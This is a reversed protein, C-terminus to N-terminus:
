YSLSQKVPGRHHGIPESVSESVCSEGPVEDDGCLECEHDARARWLVDQQERDFALVRQAQVFADDDDEEEGEEEEDGGGGGGGSGGGGGGDEQRNGGGGEDGAEAGGGRRGGGGGGGGGRSHRRRRRFELRVREQGEVDPFLAGRAETQLFSIWAFLPGTGDEACEEWIERFREAVVMRLTRDAAAAADGDEEEGALGVVVADAWPADLMYRPMGDGDPYDPDLAVALRVPPLSQVVASWQSTSSSTAATPSTAASAVVLEFDRRAEPAGPSAFGDGGGLALTVGVHIPEGSRDINLSGSAADAGGARDQTDDDAFLAKLAELEFDRADQPSFPTALGSM